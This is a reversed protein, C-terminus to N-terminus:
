KFRSIINKKLNGQCTKIESLKQAKPGLSSCFKEYITEKCIGVGDPQIKLVDYLVGLCCYKNDKKLYSKGQEYKGSRLAKVWKEM